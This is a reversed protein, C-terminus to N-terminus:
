LRHKRQLQAVYEQLEFLSKTQKGLSSRATLVMLDLFFRDAESLEHEPDLYEAPRVGFAQCLQRVLV